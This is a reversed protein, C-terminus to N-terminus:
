FFTNLKSFLVTTFALSGHKVANGNEFPTYEVGYTGDANDAVLCDTVAGSPNRVEAKM